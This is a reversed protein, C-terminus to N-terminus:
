ANFKFVIIKNVVFSLSVFKVYHQRILKQLIEKTLSFIKINM